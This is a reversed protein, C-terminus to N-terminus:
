ICKYMAYIDMVSMVFIYIYLQTEHAYLTRLIRLASNHKKEEKKKTVNELVGVNTNSYLYM